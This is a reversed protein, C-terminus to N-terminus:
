PRRPADLDLSAKHAASLWQSVRPADEAPIIFDTPEDRDSIEVIVDGDSDLKLRIEKGGLSQFILETTLPREKKGSGPSNGRRAPSEGAMAAKARAWEESMRRATSIEQIAADIVDTWPPENHDRLEKLASLSVREDSTNSETM